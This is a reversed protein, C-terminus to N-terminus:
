PCEALRADLKAHCARYEDDGPVEANPDEIVM